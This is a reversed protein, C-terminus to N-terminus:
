QGHSIEKAGYRSIEVSNSGNKKKSKISSQWVRYPLFSPMAEFSIM